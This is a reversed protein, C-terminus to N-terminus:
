RLTNYSTLISDLEEAIFAQIRSRAVIRAFSLRTPVLETVDRCGDDDFKMQSSTDNTISGFVERM